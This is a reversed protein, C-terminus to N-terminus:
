ALIQPYAEIPAANASYPFSQDIHFLFLAALEQLYAFHV